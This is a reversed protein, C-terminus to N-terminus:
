NDGGFVDSLLDFTERREESTIEKMQEKENEFLPKDKGSMACRVGIMIVKRLMEYDRKLKKPRYQAILSIEKPSM